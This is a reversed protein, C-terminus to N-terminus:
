SLCFRFQNTWYPSFDEGIGDGMQQNKRETGGRTRCEEKLNLKNLKKREWVSGECAAQPKQVETPLSACM